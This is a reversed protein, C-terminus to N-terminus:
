EGGNLDRVPECVNKNSDCGVELSVPPFEPVQVASRDSAKWLCLSSNTARRSGLLEQLAFEVDQTVFGWRTNDRLRQELEWPAL